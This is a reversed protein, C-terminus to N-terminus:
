DLSRQKAVIDHVTMVTIPKSRIYDATPKTVGELTALIAQQAGFDRLVATLERATGVGIKKNDAKCQVVTNGSTPALPRPQHQAVVDPVENEPADFNARAEILGLTDQM